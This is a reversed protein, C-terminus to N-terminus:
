VDMWSYFHRRFWLVHSTELVGTYRFIFLSCKLSPQLNLLTQWCAGSESVRDSFLLQQTSVRAMAAHRWLPRSVTKSELSLYPSQWHKGEGWHCQMPCAKQCSLLCGRGHLLHFVTLVQSDWNYMNCRSFGIAWYWYGSKQLPVEM